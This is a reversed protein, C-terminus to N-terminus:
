PEGSLRFFFRRNGNIGLCALAGDDDDAVFFPRKRYGDDFGVAFPGKIGLGTLIFKKVTADTGILEISDLDAM